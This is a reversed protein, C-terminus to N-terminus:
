VAWSCFAEEKNPNIIVQLENRMSQFVENFTKGLPAMATKRPIRTLMYLAGDAAEAPWSLMRIIPFQAEPFVSLMLERM